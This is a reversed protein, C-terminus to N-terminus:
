TNPFPVTDLYQIESLSLSQNHPSLRIVRVINVKRQSQSRDSAGNPIAWSERYRFSRRPNGSVVSYCNDKNKRPPCPSQQNHLSNTYVTPTSQQHLLLKFRCLIGEIHQLKQLLCYSTSGAPQGYAGLEFDLGHM